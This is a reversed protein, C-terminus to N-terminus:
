KDVVPPTADSIRQFWERVPLREAINPFHVCLYDLPKRGLISSKVAGILAALRSEAAQLKAKTDQIFPLISPRIAKGVCLGMEKAVAQDDWSSEVQLQERKWQELEHVRKKLMDDDKCYADIVAQAFAERAALGNSTSMGATDLYARAGIDALEKINM